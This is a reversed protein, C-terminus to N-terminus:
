SPQLFSRPTWGKLAEPGSLINHRIGFCNACTRALGIVIMNLTDRGVPTTGLIQFTDLMIGIGLTLCGAISPSVLGIDNVGHKDLTQSSKTTAQSISSTFSFISGLWNPQRLPLDVVIQRRSISCVQSEWRSPWPLWRPIQMTSKELAKSRM